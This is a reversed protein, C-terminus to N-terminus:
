VQFHVNFYKYSNVCRHDVLEQCPHLSELSFLTTKEVFLAPVIPYGYKLINVEM